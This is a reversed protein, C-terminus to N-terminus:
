YTLAIAVWTKARSAPAAPDIKHFDAHKALLSIHPTLVFTAVLDTEDALNRKLRVTDFDHYIVSLVTKHRDGLNLNVTSSLDRIGDVLTKAGGTASFADAFGQFPHASGIPAIFGESGNGGLAEYNIRGSLRKYAGNVEFMTESLHFNQPNGRADTEVAHRAVYGLSGAGYKHQGALSLGAIDVSSARANAIDAATAHRADSTFSLSYDFATLKLEPSFDYGANLLWSRANWDKEDGIVRNVHAIYAATMRFGGHTTDFRVADFTQEDQRWGSNGVFRADDLVIRQRGVTVSTTTDPTWVLQARNLETVAPDSVVPYQTKGNLTSNYRAVLANTNDIEVLASLHHFVGSQVGIRNRWTLAQANHALGQQDVDEWRLNSDVLLKSARVADSFADAALATHSSIACLSALSASLCLNRLSM